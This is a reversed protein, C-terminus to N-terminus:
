YNRFNNRRDDHDHDHDHSHQQEQRKRERYQVSCSQLAVTAFLLLAALKLIPKKM